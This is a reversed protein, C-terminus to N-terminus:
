GDSAKDPEEFPSPSTGESLTPSSSSTSRAPLRVDAHVDVLVESLPHGGPRQHGRYAAPRPVGPAQQRAGLEGAVLGPRRGRTDQRGPHLAPNSGTGAYTRPEASVLM